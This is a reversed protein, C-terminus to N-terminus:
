VLPKSSVVMGDEDAYLWDGSRVWVGQIQVDVGAQGENRKDTGDGRLCLRRRKAGAVGLRSFEDDVPVAHCAVRLSKGAIGVLHVPTAISSDLRRCLEQRLHLPAIHIEAFAVEGLLFLVDGRVEIELEVM